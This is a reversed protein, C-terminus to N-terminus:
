FAAGSPVSCTNLCYLTLYFCFIYGYYFTVGRDSVRADSFSFRSFEFELGAYIRKRTVISIGVAYSLGSSSSKISKDLLPTGYYDVQQTLPFGSLSTYMVTGYIGQFRLHSGSPEKKDNQCWSDHPLIIYFLLLTVWELKKM